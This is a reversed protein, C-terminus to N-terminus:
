AQDAVDEVAEVDDAFFIEEGVLKGSTLLLEDPDRARDNLVGLEDEGVLGGAVEVGSLAVFDHLEELAQVFAAGGDNLDSVGLAVGGEAVADDLEFVSPHDALFFGCGADPLIRLEYPVIRASGENELHRLIRM